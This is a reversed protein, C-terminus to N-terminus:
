LTAGATDFLAGRSADKIQRMVKAAITEADQGPAANVEINFNNTITRSDITRQSDFVNNPLVDQSVRSKVPTFNELNGTSNNNNPAENSTISTQIEKNSGFLLGFIKGIATIPASILKWFGGLWGAFSQWVAQVPEWIGSFFNKVTDWKAILLGAALAIGGIILGIPNTMFAVTLARLGGIILPIARSALSILGSALGQVIGGFALLRIRGATILSAANFTQLRVTTFSIANGLFRWASIFAQGIALLKMRTFAIASTVNFSKLHMKAFLVALGFNKWTGSLFGAIALAKVRMATIVAIKSFAQFRIGTLAVEVGLKALGIRVLNAGGTVFTWAFAVGLAAIKLAVMAFIAGFVVKTVLPFKDALDAMRLVVKGISGLVLNIAPLLTAGMNIGLEGLSNTFLNIQNATTASRNKFEREMSGILKLEGQSDTSKLVDLAKTFVDVQGALASISGVQQQGFLSFIIGTREIKDIKSLQQLFSVLAGEADNAIADKLSSAELGMKQLAKQFKPSQQDATLLRTLLRNIATGAEEPAKGLAIFSDALAAIVKPDLGFGKGVGGVRTLAKVIQSAKAATNDSLHNIADGLEDMDTIAIGFINSLNAMATGAEEETLDFAIAMKSAIEVFKQLDKVNTEIQGTLENKKAGVGLQAGSAAITALGKASIPITRSMQKLGKELEKIVNDAREKDDPLAIVKKVDAMANEFGIAATVPSAIAAGLAIMDFVQGRIASRRAKIAEGRKLTSDLARYRSQLKTVSAGLKAQQATLNRTSQGTRAMEGRVKQLADRQKVYETKARSSANKAKEFERQMVQTPNATNKMATSLQKVQEEASRWANRASETKTKLARFSDIRKSDADLKKIASGLNSIQSQGQGITSGFSGKLAAGITIAVTHQKSM